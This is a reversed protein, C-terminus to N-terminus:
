VKFSKYPADLLLSLYTTPLAGVKYGLVEALEKMNPVNGVPILESKELNIKLRSGINNFTIVWAQSLACPMSATVKSWSNLNFMSKSKVVNGEVGVDRREKILFGDIFGGEKARSHLRSLTEM